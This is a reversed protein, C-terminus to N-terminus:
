PHGAFDGHHSFFRGRLLSSTYQSAARRLLRNPHLPGVGYGVRQQNILCLVADDFQRLTLQASAVDSNPCDAAGSAPAAPGGLLGIAAFLAMLAPALAKRAVGGLM